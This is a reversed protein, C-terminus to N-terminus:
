RAARASTSGPPSLDRAPWGVEELQARQAQLWDSDGVDVLVEGRFLALEEAPL